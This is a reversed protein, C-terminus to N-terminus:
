LSLAGIRRMITLSIPIPRERHLFVLRIDNEFDNLVLVGLSLLAL